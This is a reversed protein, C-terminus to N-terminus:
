FLTPQEAVSGHNLVKEIAVYRTTLRNHEDLAKEVRMVVRYIDNARLAEEGDLIKKKFAEDELAVFQTKIGDTVRWKGNPRFSPDLAQVVMEASSETTDEEKTNYHAFGDAEESDVNESGHENRLEVSDIGDTLAPATADKVAQTFREDTVLALSTKTAKIKTGDALEVDIESFADAEPKEDVKKPKGHKIIRKFLRVAKMAIDSLGDVALIATVTTGTLVAPGEQMIHVILDVVFSGEETAKANLKVRAEPAVQEQVADFMASFALLAPALQKVDIEHNDLATGDYKVYFKEVAQVDDNTNQQAQEM